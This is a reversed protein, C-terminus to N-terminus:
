EPAVVPVQIRGSQNKIAPSHRLKLVRDKELPAGRESNRCVASRVGVVDAGLDRATELDQERLSGALGFLMGARHAAEAFDRLPQLDIFEFLPRGDKIATDLLCAQIQAAAAIRPLCEPDLTGARRFDAYGAAVVSVPYKRVADRVRRLFHLAESEDRLGHLGVKIFDAGCAAAGLAALAATGPLNPMDGIAASVPVDSPCLERIERIIQPPQAGLSGEEPNKVDLIEAGGEVADRAEAASVVSIMLKM